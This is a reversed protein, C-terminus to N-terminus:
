SRRGRRVGLATEVDLYARVLAVSELGRIWPQPDDIHYLIRAPDEGFRDAHEPYQPHDSNFAAPKGTM